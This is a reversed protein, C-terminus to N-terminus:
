LLSREIVRIFIADLCGGPHLLGIKLPFNTLTACLADLCLENV